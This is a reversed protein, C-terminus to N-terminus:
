CVLIFHQNLDLPATFAQHTTKFARLLPLNKLQLHREALLSSALYIQIRSYGSMTIIRWDAIIFFVLQHVYGWPRPSGRVHHRTKPVKSTAKHHKHISMKVINLTSHMPYSIDKEPCNYLNLHRTLDERIKHGTPYKWNHSKWTRSILMIHQPYHVLFFELERAM